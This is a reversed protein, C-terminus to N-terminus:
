RMQDTPKESQGISKAQLSGDSGPQLAYVNVSTRTGMGDNGGGVGNGNNYGVDFVMVGAEQIPNGLDKKYNSEFIYGHPLEINAFEFGYAMGPQWSVGGQDIVKFGYVTLNGSDKDKKALDTLYILTMQKGSAKGAVLSRNIQSNSASIRDMPYLYWADSSDSSSVGGAGKNNGGGQGGSSSVDDTPYLLNLDAFEDYLTNGEVKTIRGSRRVAVAHGVVIENDDATAARITENWFFIATPQRDVQARQYAARILSNVNQMVGKEEMGRSMARYGGVSATGLIGMIGIVVLLEILTFARKMM